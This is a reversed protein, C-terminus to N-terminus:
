PGNHSAPIGSSPEQLEYFPKSTSHVEMLEVPLKSDTRSEAEADEGQPNSRGAAVKSFAKLMKAFDTGLKEGWWDAAINKYM